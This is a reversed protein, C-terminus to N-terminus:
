TPHQCSQDLSPRRKAAALFAQREDGTLYKRKGAANFLVHSLRKV